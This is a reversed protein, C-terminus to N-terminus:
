RFVVLAWCARIISPSSYTHIGEPLSELDILKDVHQVDIAVSSAHMLLQM